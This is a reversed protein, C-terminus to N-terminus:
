GWKVLELGYRDMKKEAQWFTVHQKGTRKCVDMIMAKNEDSTRLGFLIRKICRPNFEVPGIYDRTVYRFEKEYSWPTYKDTIVAMAFNVDDQAKLREGLAKYKVFWERDDLHKSRGFMEVYFEVLESPENLDSFEDKYEVNFGSVNIRKGEVSLNSHLDEFEICFGTHDRAYHSWLLIEDPVASLSLIGMRDMNRRITAHVAKHANIREETVNSTIQMLHQLASEDLDGAAHRQKLREQVAQFFKRLDTFPTGFEFPDNFGGFGSFYVQNKTLGLLSYEGFARFKYLKMGLSSVLEKDWGLTM